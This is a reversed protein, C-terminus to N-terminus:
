NSKSCEWVNFASNDNSAQAALVTRAIGRSGNRVAASVVRQSASVFMIAALFDLYCEFDTSQVQAFSCLIHISEPSVPVHSNGCLFEVVCLTVPLL